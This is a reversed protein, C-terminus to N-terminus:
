SPPVPKKTNKDKADTEKQEDGTGLVVIQSVSRRDNKVEYYVIVNTGPSLENVKLKEGAASEVPVNKKVPFFETASGEVTGVALLKRKLDVSQVKGSFAQRTSGGAIKGIVPVKSRREDQAHAPRVAALALFTLMPFAIALPIRRRPALVLGISTWGSGIPAKRSHKGASAEPGAIASHLWTQLM